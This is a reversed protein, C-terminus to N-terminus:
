RPPVSRALVVVLPMPSNRVVNLMGGSSLRPARVTVATPRALWRNARVVKRTWFWGQDGAAAYRVGRGPRVARCAGPRGSSAGPSSRMRLYPWGASVPAVPVPWHAKESRDSDASEPV